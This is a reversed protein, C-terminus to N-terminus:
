HIRRYEQPTVGKMRKFQRTLHSHDYFGSDQAIRSITDATELLARCAHNVRVQILYHRPTMQFLRRFKREFQSVSMGAMRALVPVDLPEAFHRNIYEVVTTFVSYPELNSKSENLDRAIGALGIVGGERDFLPVKSTVFLNNRGDMEPAPEIRNVIRNGTRMVYTDDKIYREARDPPFFDHDTRGLLEELRSLGCKEFFLRNAMVFRGERNKAFFFVDPLFEFLSGVQPDSALRVMFAQQYELADM